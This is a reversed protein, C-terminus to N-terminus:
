LSKEAKDIFLSYREALKYLWDNFLSNVTLYIYYDYGFEVVVESSELIAWFEERLISQIIKSVEAEQEPLIFAIEGRYKKPEQKKLKIKKAEVKKIINLISSIYNNEVLLYESKTFIKGEFTSSIDGFSTWEDKTYAGNKDRFIPNYKSLRYRVDM